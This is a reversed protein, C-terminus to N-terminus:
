SLAHAATTKTLNIARGALHSGLMVRERAVPDATRVSQVLHPILLSQAHLAHTRSADSSAVSWLSETAQCLADLGTAAAIPAPMAIHLSADLVVGRPRIHPHAVSIKKKDVYIASFHTTDSGTGSTTPIAVVPLPVVDHPNAGRVLTDARDPAGAALAGVKAVDMCSGGGLALVADVGARHAFEAARLPQDSTPNPTFDTFTCAIRDKLLSALIEDARTARAAGVDLVLLVRRIALHDFLDPLAHLSRALVQGDVRELSRTPSSASHTGLSM